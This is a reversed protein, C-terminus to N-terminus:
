LWWATLDALAHAIAPAAATNTWLRLGGLWLGVALDLPLAHWGYFPVHVLGFVITTVVLAAVNGASDAVVGFLAGRIMLEEAGAVLTVAGAWVLWNETHSPGALHFGDALLPGIVLGAAGAIGVGTVM